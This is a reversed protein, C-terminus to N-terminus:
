RRVEILDVNSTHANPNGITFANFDSDFRVWIDFQYTATYTGALWPDNPTFRGTENDWVGSIAVGDRYVTATGDQIAQIIRTVSQPGAEYSKVIQLPDSTGISPAQPEEVAQYDNPDTFRFCHLRGMMAHFFQLVAQQESRRLNMYEASFRHRPYRWQGNRQERGNDMPIILTSWEPGGTFGYAVCESLNVNVFSM